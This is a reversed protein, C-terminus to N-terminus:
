WLSQLRICVCLTVIIDNQYYSQFKGTPPQRGKSFVELQRYSKRCFYPTTMSTLNQGSTRVRYITNYQSLYLTDMFVSIGYFAYSQSFSYITKRNTGNVTSSELVRYDSDTWYLRQEQYDLTLSHTVPVNTNIIVTRNKGDMSAKEIQNLFNDNWYLWRDLMIILITSERVIILNGQQQIWLLTRWIVLM